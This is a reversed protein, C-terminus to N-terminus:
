TASEGISIPRPTISTNAPSSELSTRSKPPICCVATGDSSAERIETLGSFNRMNAATANKLWEGADDRLWPVGHAQYLWPGPGAGAMFFPPAGGLVHNPVELYRALLSRFLYPRSRTVEARGPAGPVHSGDARHQVHCASCNWAALAVGKETPLWRLFDLTGDAFPRAKQGEMFERNRVQAILNSDYTTLQPSTAGEFVKKGAEIWDTRTKLNASEFLPRPGIHQLMEWYGEPERGPMYVPYSRYNEVPIAYYEEPSIHGPRVNLGAVRTAWDALQTEDWTKPTDPVWAKSDEAAFAASCTLPTLVFPLFTRNFKM